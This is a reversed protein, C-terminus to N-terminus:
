GGDDYVRTQEEAYQGDWHSYRGGVMLWVARAGAAMLRRLARGDPRRQAAEATDMYPAREAGTTRARCRKRVGGMVAAPPRKRLVRERWPEDSARERPAAAAAEPAM